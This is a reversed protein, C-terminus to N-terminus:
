QDAARSYSFSHYINLRREEPFSCPNTRPDRPYRLSGFGLQLKLTVLNCTFTVQKPKDERKCGSSSFGFFNVECRDCHQGTVGPQCECQGSNIDCDGSISGIPNCNCRHVPLSLCNAFLSM